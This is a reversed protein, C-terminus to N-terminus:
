GTLVGRLIAESHQAALARLDPKQAAVEGFTELFLLGMLMPGVISFAYLRPDGARAEGRAQAGAILATLLALVRGAAEDHWIRALDPFARSETLVMRLIGPLRGDGLREALRMLVFPVVEALSGEFETAEAEIAALNAEIAQRAAARFLEAKDDFYLYLTGKAVGARRAVDDLRTGAFGLEVFADMAADVIEAPRAAKRRRRKPREEATM